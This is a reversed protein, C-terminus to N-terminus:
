LRTRCCIVAPPAPLRVWGGVWRGVWKGVFQDLVVAGVFADELLDGAAACTLGGVWEGVWGVWRHGIWGVWLLVWTSILGDM